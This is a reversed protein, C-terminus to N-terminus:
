SASGPSRLLASRLVILRKAADAFASLFFYSPM